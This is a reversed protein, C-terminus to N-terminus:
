TLLAYGVFISTSSKSHPIGTPLPINTAVLFASQLSGTVLHLFCVFYMLTVSRPVHSSHHIFSHSWAGWDTFSTCRCREPLTSREVSQCSLVLSREASACLSKIHQCNSARMGRRM